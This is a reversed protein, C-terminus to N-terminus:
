HELDENRSAKIDIAGLFKRHSKCGTVTLALGIRGRGKGNKM